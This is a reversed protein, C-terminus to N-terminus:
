QRADGVFLYMMLSYTVCCKQYKMLECQVCFIFIYVCIYMIYMYIYICLYVPPFFTFLARSRCTSLSHILHAAMMLCHVHTCIDIEPARLPTSSEDGCSVAWLAFIIYALLALPFCMRTRERRCLLRFSHASMMTTTWCLGGVLYM